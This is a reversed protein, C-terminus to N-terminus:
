DTAWYIEVLNDEPDRIFFSIARGTDHGYLIPVGRERARAYYSTLDDRTNVEFATHRAQPNTFFM